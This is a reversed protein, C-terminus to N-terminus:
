KFLVTGSSNSYRIMKIYYTDGGDTMEFYFTQDAGSTPKFTVTASSDTDSYASITYPTNPFAADTWFNAALALSYYDANADLTKRVASMDEDNVGAIFNDIVDRISEDTAPKCGALISLAAVIAVVSAFALIGKTRANM